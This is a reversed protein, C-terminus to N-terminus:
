PRRTKAGGLVGPDVEDLVPPQGAQHLQVAAPRSVMQAQLGQVVLPKVVEVGLQIEVPLPLEGAVQLELCGWIRRRTM